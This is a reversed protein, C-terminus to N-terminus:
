RAALAAVRAEDMSALGRTSEIQSYVAGRDEYLQARDPYKAILDTYAGIADFWLHHAVLVRARSLAEEYGEGSSVALEKEIQKQEAVSVVTFQLGEGAITDPLVQVRWEYIEGPQLKSLGAPLRYSPEKVDARMIRTEDEDVITFVYGEGHKKSSWQFMASCGYLKALKPGMLTAPSEIGRTGGVVTKVHGTKSDALDFGKLDEDLLKKKPNVGPRENTSTGKQAPQTAPQQAVCSGVLFFSAFILTRFRV